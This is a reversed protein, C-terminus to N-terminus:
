LGVVPVHSAQTTPRRVGLRLAVVAGLFGVAM